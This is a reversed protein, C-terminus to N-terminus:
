DAQINKERVLKGWREYDYTTLKAFAEPSGSEPVLAADILRKQVDPRAVAAVVAKNVRDVIDAPTGNPAYIGFWASAYFDPFLESVTPINPAGPFRKREGIALVKVKGAAVHTSLGALTSFVIDISGGLLDTMAPGIGRYPVHVLSINGQQQLLEGMVHHPSGSGPTGFTLKGPNKKAWEVLEQLTSVPSDARVAVGMPGSCIQAVATLGKYADFSGAKIVHPNITTISNTSLLLRYGDAPSRAVYAAGTNGSAGGKNDIVITQGLHASLTPQLIRGILDTSAGPPYPVVLEIPRNPYAQSWASHTTVSLLSAVGGMLATRRSINM